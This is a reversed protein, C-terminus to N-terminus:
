HLVREEGDITRGQFLMSTLMKVQLPILKVGDGHLVVEGDSMLTIYHKSNDELDNLVLTAVIATGQPMAQLGDPDEDDEPPIIPVIPDQKRKKRTAM